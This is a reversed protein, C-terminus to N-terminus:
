ATPCKQRRNLEDDVERLLENRAVLRPTDDWWTLFWRCGTPKGLREDAIFCARAFGDEVEGVTEGEICTGVPCAAVVTEGRMCMLPPPSCTAGQLLTEDDTLLAERLSELAGTSFQPAFGERWVRKWAPEPQVLTAAAATALDDPQHISITM